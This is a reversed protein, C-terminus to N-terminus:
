LRRSLPPYQSSLVSVVRKTKTGGKVEMYFRHVVLCKLGIKNKGAHLHNPAEGV